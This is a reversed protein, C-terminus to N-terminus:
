EVSPVEVAFKVKTNVVAFEAAPTISRLIFKPTQSIRFNCKMKLSTFGKCKCESPFTKSGFM